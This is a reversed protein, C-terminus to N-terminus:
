MDFGFARVDYLLRSMPPLALRKRTWFRCWRVTYATRDTVAAAATSPWAGIDVDCLQDSHFSMPIAVCTFVTCTFKLSFSLLHRFFFFFWVCLSSALFLPWLLFSTAACPLRAGCCRPCVLVCAIRCVVQHGPRARQKDTWSCKKKKNTTGNNNVTCLELM